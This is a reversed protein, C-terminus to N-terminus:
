PDVVCTNINKMKFKDVSTRKEFVIGHSVYIYKSLQEDSQEPQYSHVEPNFQRIIKLPYTDYVIFKEGGNEADWDDHIFVSVSSICPYPM